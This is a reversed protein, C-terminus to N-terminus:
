SVILINLNWKKFFGQGLKKSGLAELKHFERGSAILDEALRM